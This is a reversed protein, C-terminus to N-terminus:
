SLMLGPENYELSTVPLCAAMRYTICIAGVSGSIHSASEEVLTDQDQLLVFFNM